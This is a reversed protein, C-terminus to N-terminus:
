MSIMLPLPARPLVTKVISHGLYLVDTNEISISYDTAVIDCLLLSNRIYVNHM